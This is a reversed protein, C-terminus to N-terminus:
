TLVKRLYSEIERRVTPDASLFDTIAEKDAKGLASALNPHSDILESVCARTMVELKAPDELAHKDFQSIVGFPQTSGTQQIKSRTEAFGSDRKADVPTDPPSDSLPGFGGPRKINNIDM